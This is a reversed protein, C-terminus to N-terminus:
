APAGLSPFAQVDPSQPRRTRRPLDQYSLGSSRPGQGAETSTLRDIPSLSETAM